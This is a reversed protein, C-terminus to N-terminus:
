NLVDRALSSKEGRMRRSSECISLKEGLYETGSSRLPFTHSRNRYKIVCEMLTSHLMTGGRDFNSKLSLGKQQRVRPWGWPTRASFPEGRIQSFAGAEFKPSVPSQWHKYPAGGRVFVHKTLFQEDPLALPWCLSRPPVGLPM